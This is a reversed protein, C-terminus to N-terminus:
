DGQQMTLFNITGDKNKKPESGFIEVVAPHFINVIDGKKPDDAQQAMNILTSLTWPEDPITMSGQPKFKGDGIHKMWQISRIDSYVLNYQIDNLTYSQEM